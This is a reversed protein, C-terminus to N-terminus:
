KVHRLMWEALDAYIPYSTILVNDHAAGPIEVWKKLTGAPLSEYLCRGSDMGIVPLFDEKRGRRGHVLVLTGITKERAGANRALHLRNGLDKKARSVGEM